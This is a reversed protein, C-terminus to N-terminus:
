RNGFRYNVGILVTQLKQTERFSYPNVFGCGAGCDYTLGTNYSGADIYDYEVFASWNPHFAYEAGGGITWGMRTVSAQGSFPPAARPDVDTYNTRVWAAGGRVYLLAQPVIAYGIRGTLTGFWNTRFGIQENPNNLYQRSANLGTWNSMGQIGVVWSPAFQYDCGAQGGGVVGSGTASGLDVRVVNDFAQVEDWGYGVNGGISCSTWNYATVPPAKYLPGKVHMDAAMAPATLLAAVASGVMLFTKM